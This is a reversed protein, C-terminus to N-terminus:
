GMRWNDIVLRDYGVARVFEYHVVNGTVLPLGASLAIAAVMVDPMGIIRGNRELDAYIRGAIRGAAADFPLVEITVLSSEFQELRDDRGMRRFGYIVETVSVASTSFRGQEALYAAAKAAIAANKGKMIESSIDTDLLRRTM